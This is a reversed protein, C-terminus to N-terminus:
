WVFVMLSQTQLCNLHTSLITLITVTVYRFMIRNEGSGCIADMIPNNEEDEASKFTPIEIRTKEQDLSAKKNENM